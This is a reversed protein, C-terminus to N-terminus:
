VGGERPFEVHECITAISKALNASSSCLVRRSMLDFPGGNADVVCGGAELVILAAAAMDWCHIGYELYADASGQAVFCMNIAASGLSRHGRIGKEAITRNNRLGIDLWNPIEKINHVGLTLMVISKNLEETGSTKIPFGNKFAGQGARATYLEDLIPNYVVGIRAEKKVYLGICIGIFPLKHVFNTTGDIPDIIWTPEDTLVVKQGGATSEEGIFKHNKFFKSLGDILLKEVRQDCETVLDIDSAKTTTAIRTPRNFAEKVVQGAEHVLKLVVDYYVDEESKFTNGSM